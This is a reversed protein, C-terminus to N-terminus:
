INKRERREGIFMRGPNSDEPAGRQEIKRLESAFQDALDRRSTTYESSTEEQEFLGEEALIRIYVHDVDLRESLKLSDLREGPPTNRIEDRARFYIEDLDDRCGTCIQPGNLHLYVKGCIRCNRLSNEM